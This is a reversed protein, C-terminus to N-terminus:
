KLDFKGSPFSRMITHRPLFMLVVYVELVQIQVKHILHLVHIDLSLHSAFSM